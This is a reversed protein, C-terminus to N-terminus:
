SSLALDLHDKNVDSLVVLNRTVVEWIERAEDHKELGDLKIARESAALLILTYSYDFVAIDFSSKKRPIEM